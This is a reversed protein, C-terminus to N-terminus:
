RKEFASFSLSLHTFIVRLTLAFRYSIFSNSTVLSKQSIDVLSGVMLRPLCIIFGTDLMTAHLNICIFKSTFIVVLNNRIPIIKKSKKYLKANTSLKKHKGLSTKPM